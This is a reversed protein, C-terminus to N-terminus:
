VLVRPGVWCWGAWRAVAMELLRLAGWVRSVWVRSPGELGVRFVICWSATAPRPWLLTEAMQMDGAGVVCGLVAGCSQVLAWPDGLLRRMAKLYEWVSGLQAPVM